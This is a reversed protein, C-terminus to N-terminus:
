VYYLYIALPSFIHPHLSPETILFAPKEQLPGPIGMMCMVTELNRYSKIPKQMHWDHCRYVFVCVCEYASM